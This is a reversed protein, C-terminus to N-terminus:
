NNKNDTAQFGLGTPEDDAPRLNSGERRSWGIGRWLFPFLGRRIWVKDVRVAEYFCFQPGTFTRGGAGEFVITDSSFAVVSM